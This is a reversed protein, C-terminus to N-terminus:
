SKRLRTQVIVLHTLHEWFLNSQELFRRNKNKSWFKVLKNPHQYLRYIPVYAQMRHASSAEVGIVCIDFYLRRRGLVNKLHKSPTAGGFVGSKRGKSEKQLVYIIWKIGQQLCKVLHTLHEQFKNSQEWFRNPLIFLNGFDTRSEWSNIPEEWSKNLKKKM